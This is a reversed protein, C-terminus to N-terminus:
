FSQLTHNTIHHFSSLTDRAPKNVLPQEAALRYLRALRYSLGICYVVVNFGWDPVLFIAVPEYLM